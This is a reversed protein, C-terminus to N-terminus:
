AVIEAEEPVEAELAELADLVSQRNLNQREYDRIYGIDYGDERIKAILKPVQKIQDYNPWPAELRPKEIRIYNTGYAPANLLAEEVQQRREDSWNYARQHFETDYVALRTEPMVGEPLGNFVFSRKALDAEWDLIGAHEFDCRVGEDQVYLEGNVVMPKSGAIATITYGKNPSIFRM